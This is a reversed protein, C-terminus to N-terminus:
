KKIYKYILKKINQYEEIVLLNLETEIKQTALQYVNNELTLTNNENKPKYYNKHYLNKKLVYNLYRDFELFEVNNFDLSNIKCLIEHLKTNDYFKEENLMNNIMMIIILKELYEDFTLNSTTFYDSLKINFPLNVHYNNRIIYDSEPWILFPIYFEIPLPWSRCDIFDVISAKFPYNDFWISSVGVLPKDWTFLNLFILDFFYQFIKSNYIEYLFDFYSQIPENFIKIIIVKKDLLEKFNYFYNIVEEKTIVEFTSWQSYIFFHLPFFINSNLFSNLTQQSIFLTLIKDLRILFYFGVYRPCNAAYNIVNRHRLFAEWVLTEKCGIEITEYFWEKIFRIHQKDFRISWKDLEIYNLSLLKGFSYFLSWSDNIFWNQAFYHFILNNFNIYPSWDLNLEPWMLSSFFFGIEDYFKQNIFKVFYNKYFYDFYTTFKGYRIHMLFPNNEFSNYTFKYAKLLWEQFLEREEDNDIHCGFNEYTLPSQRMGLYWDPHNNILSSVNYGYLMCALRESQYMKQDVEIEEYFLSFRELWSLPFLLDAKLLQAYEPNATFNFIANYNLIYYNLGWMTYTRKSLIDMLLFRLAAFQDSFYAPQYIRLDDFFTEYDGWVISTSHYWWIDLLSMGDIFTFGAHFFRNYDATQYDLFTNIWGWSILTDPFISMYFAKEYSSFYPNRSTNFLSPMQVTPNILQTWLRQLWNIMSYNYIFDEILYGGWIYHWFLIFNNDFNLSTFDFFSQIFNLNIITDVFNVLDRLKEYGYKTERPNAWYSLPPFPHDPNEILKKDPDSFVLDEFFLTRYRLFMLTWYDYLPQEWTDWLFHFVEYYHTSTVEWGLYWHLPNYPQLNNEVMEILYQNDKFPVVVDDLYLEDVDYIWDNKYVILKWLKNHLDKEIKKQKSFFDNPLNLKNIIEKENLNKYKDVTLNLLYDDLFNDTSLFIKKETLFKIFTQNKMLISNLDEIKLIDTSNEEFDFFGFKFKVVFENYINNQLFVMSDHDFFFSTYGREQLEALQEAFLNINWWKLIIKSLFWKKKKLKSNFIKTDQLNLFNLM